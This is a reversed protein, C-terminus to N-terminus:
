NSTLKKLSNFVINKLTPPPSLHKELESESWKHRNTSRNSQTKSVAEVDNKTAFMANLYFAPVGEFGLM